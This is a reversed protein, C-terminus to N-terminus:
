GHSMVSSQTPFLHATARWYTNDGGYLDLLHWYSYFSYSLWTILKPYQDGKSKVTNLPLNKDNLTKKKSIVRSLLQSESNRLM